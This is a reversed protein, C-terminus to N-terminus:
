KKNTPGRSTRLFFDAGLLALLLGMPIKLNDLGVGAYYQYVLYGFVLFAASLFASSVGRSKLRTLNFLAMISCLIVVSLQFVHLEQANM